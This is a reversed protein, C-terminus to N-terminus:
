KVQSVIESVQKQNYENALKQYNILDLLTGIFCLGGTFFYLLGMGTQGLLFRPVGAIGILGLLGTLLITQPNKRRVRYVTAFQRAQDDSLGTLAEGVMAAEDGAIEPLLETVTAM